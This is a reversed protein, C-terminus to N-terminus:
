RSRSLRGPAQPPGRRRCSTRVLEIAGSTDHVDPLILTGDKGTEATVGEFGDRWHADFLTALDLAARVGDKHAIMLLMMSDAINENVVSRIHMAMEEVQKRHEQEGTKLGVISGLRSLQTKLADLLNESDSATPLFPNVRCHTDEHILVGARVLRDDLTRIMASLRETDEFEPTYRARINWIQCEDVRARAMPLDGIHGDPRVGIIRPVPSLGHDLYRVALTAVEKISRDSVSRKSWYDSSTNALHPAISLQQRQDPAFVWQDFAAKTAVTAVQAAGISLALIAAGSALRKLARSAYSSRVVPVAAEAEGHRVGQVGENPNPGSGKETSVPDHVEIRSRTRIFRFFRNM